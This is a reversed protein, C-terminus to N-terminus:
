FNAKNLQTLCDDHIKYSASRLYEKVQPIESIHAIKQAFNDRTCACPFIDGDFTIYFLSTGAQCKNSDKVPRCGVMKPFGSFTLRCGYTNRNKFIKSVAENQREDTIGISSWNFSASGIKRLKLLRIESVNTAALQSIVDDLEDINYQNLVLHIKVLLGATIFNDITQMVHKLSGPINTIEDHYLPNTHHISVYASQLGANRLEVVQNLSMSSFDGNNQVIGSTFVEVVDNNTLDKHLSSIIGILNPSLLPEGGTLQLHVETNFLKIFEIADEISYGMEHLGFTAASSCHKCNLVCKNGIELQIETINSM